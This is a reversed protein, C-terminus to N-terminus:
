FQTEGTLLHSSIELESEASPIDSNQLSVAAEVYCLLPGERCCTPLLCAKRSPSNELLSNISLAAKIKICQIYAGSKFQFNQQAKLMSYMVAGRLFIYTCEAVGLLPEGAKSFGRTNKQKQKKGRKLKNYRLNNFNKIVSQIYKSKKTKIKAHIYGFMTQSGVNLLEM